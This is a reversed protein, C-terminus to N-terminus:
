AAARRLCLCGAQAPPESPAKSLCPREDSRPIGLALALQRLLSLLSQRGQPALEDELREAWQMLAVLLAELQSNGEATLQWVQRRRDPAKREGALWGRARLQEVQGSVHAPSLALLSALESQSLGESPAQRCAWLLSFHAHPLDLPVAHRALDERLARECCGLWQALEAWRLASEGPPAPQHPSNM